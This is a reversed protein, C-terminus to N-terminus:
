NTPRLSPSLLLCSSLIQEDVPSRSHKANRQSVDIGNGYEVCWNGKRGDLSSFFRHNKELWSARPDTPSSRAETLSDSRTKFISSRLGFGSIAGCECEPGRVVYWKGGVTEGSGM